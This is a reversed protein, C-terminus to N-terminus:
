STRGEHETNRVIKNIYSQAIGYMASLQNQSYRGTEYMAKIKRQMLPSLAKERSPTYHRGLVNMMHQTNEKASVWELNSPHNNLTDGDKHNVQPKNEPNDILTEAIVRHALFQGKSTNIFANKRGFKNTNISPKRLGRPGYINGDEDVTLSTDKFQKM